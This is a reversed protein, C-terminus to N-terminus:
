HRHMLVGATSIGDNIRFEMEVVRTSRHVEDMAFDHRGVCRLTRRVSISGNM